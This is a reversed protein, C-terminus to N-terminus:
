ALVLWLAGLGVLLALVVKAVRVLRRNRSDLSNDYGFVIARRFDDRALERLFSRSPESGSPEPHRGSWGSEEPARPAGSGQLKRISSRLRSM